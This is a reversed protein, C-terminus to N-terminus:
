NRRLLSLWIKVAHLEKMYDLPFPVVDTKNATCNQHFCTDPHVLAM